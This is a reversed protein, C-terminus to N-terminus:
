HQRIVSEGKIKFSIKENEITYKVAYRYGAIPNECLNDTKDFLCLALFFGGDTNDFVANGFSLVTQQKYTYDGDSVTFSYDDNELNEISQLITPHEDGNGYIMFVAKNNTFDASNIGYRVTLSISNPPFESDYNSIVFSCIRKEDASPQPKEETNKGCGAFLVTLSLCIFFIALSFANKRKLSYFKM